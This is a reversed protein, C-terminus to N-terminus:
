GGRHNARDVLAHLATQGAAFATVRLGGHGDREPQWRYFPV